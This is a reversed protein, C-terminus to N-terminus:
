ARCVKDFDVNGIRKKLAERFEDWPCLDRHKPCGPIRIPLENHLVRVYYNSRQTADDLHADDCQLLEFHLNAAFPVIRSLRFARDENFKPNETYMGLQTLILIITGTHGFRLHANVKDDKSIATEMEAVVNQLFSCAIKSNIELGNGYKYYKYIDERFDMLALPKVTKRRLYEDDITSNVHETTNAVDLTAGKDDLSSELLKCWHAHQAYIANEYSCASVAWQFVKETVKFKLLKSLVKLVHSMHQKEYPTFAKEAVKKNKTLKLWRPCAESISENRSKKKSVTNLSKNSFRHGSYVSGYARASAMIRNKNTQKNTQM